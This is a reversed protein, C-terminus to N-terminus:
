GEDGFDLEATETLKTNIKLLDNQSSFKGNEEGRNRESNDSVTKAKSSHSGMVKTFSCTTEKNDNNYNNKSM